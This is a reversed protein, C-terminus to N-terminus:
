ASKILQERLAKPSLDTLRRITDCDAAFARFADAELPRAFYYGQFLTCGHRRLWQYEQQREVGEALVTIGLGRGLAIISQCIAQSDRQSDVDTIFERDIKLKDFRLKKLYSLSSYGAGFDDISISVGLTRLKEFLLKAGLPDIAAATETLELELLVPNLDHQKLVRDVLMDIDRRELQHASLNIAVKLGTLGSREWAKAERCGKHLTWLGIEDALGAAEAIPIFAGPPVLGREPHRWRLLAEAGCVAQKSADIFPQYWLEFQNLAIAQRLDQECAFLERASLAADINPESSSRTVGSALMANARGLLVGAKFEGSPQDIAVTRIQPLLDIGPLDIRNRLAYGIADLETRATQCQEGEFWIAFRARDVHAIFRDQAIMRHIRDAMERLVQDAAGLDFAGLRDFDSLEIMGLVGGKSSAEMMQLLPERTPLGTLGHSQAVRHQIGDFDRIMQEALEVIHVLPSRSHPSGTVKANAIAAMRVALAALRRHRMLSMVLLLLSSITLLAGWIILVHM